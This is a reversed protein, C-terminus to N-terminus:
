SDFSSLSLAMGPSEPPPLGPGTVSKPHARSSPCQIWFSGKAMAYHPAEQKITPPLVRSMNQEKIEGTMRPCHNPSSVQFTSHVKCKQRSLSVPGCHRTYIHVYNNSNEVTSLVTGLATVATLPSESGQSSQESSCTERLHVAVVM